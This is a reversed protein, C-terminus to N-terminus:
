NVLTLQDTTDSETVGHVTGQWAGRDMSNELCSYKLPNRYGEGPSRGLGPISGLDGANCTSEKGASGCPFGLIQHKVWSNGHLAHKIFVPLIFPAIDWACQEAWDVATFVAVSHWTRLDADGGKRAHKQKYWESVLFGPIEVSDGELVERKDQM